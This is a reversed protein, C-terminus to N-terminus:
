ALDQPTINEQEMKQRFQAILVSKQEATVKNDESYWFDVPLPEKDATYLRLKRWDKFVELDEGQEHAVTYALATRYAHLSGDANDNLKCTFARLKESKRYCTFMEKGGSKYVAIRYTPEERESLRKKIKLAQKIQNHHSIAANYADSLGSWEDFYFHKVLLEGDSSRHWTIIRDYLLNFPLKRQNIEHGVQNIRHGRKTNIDSLNIELKRSVEQKWKPFHLAIREALCNPFIEISPQRSLLEGRENPTLKYRDVYLDVAQTFAKDYGLHPISFRTDGEGYVASGVVVVPEIYRNRKTLGYTFSLYLGDAIRGVSGPKSLSWIKQERLYLESEALWQSDLEHALREAESKEYANLSFYKQRYNSNAGITRAVRFGVFGAPHEGKEYFRVSM